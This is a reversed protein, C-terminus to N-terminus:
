TAAMGRVDCAARQPSSEAILDLATLSGQYHSRLADAAVILSRVGVRDCFAMDSLMLDLLELWSDAGGVRDANTHRMPLRQRAWAKQRVTPPEAFRGAPLAGGTKIPVLVDRVFEDSSTVRGLAEFSTAARFHAIEADDRPERGLFFAIATAVFNDDVHARDRRYRERREHFGCLHRLYLPRGVHGADNWPKGQGTFHAIRADEYFDPMLPGDDSCYAKNWTRDLRHWQHGIITNLADQDPWRPPQPAEALWALCRRAVDYKRFGDVDILMLGSNFYDRDDGRPTDHIAAIYGEDFVTEFLPRVSANVIMDSDLTLIRANPAKIVTTLFLRGLVAPPYHAEWEHGAFRGLMSPDVDVIRVKHSIRGAHSLLMGHDEHRLGFGAILITAEPVAGREALSTLMVATPKVFARDCACGVYWLDPDM